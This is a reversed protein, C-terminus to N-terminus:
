SLASRIISPIPIKKKTAPSIFVHTTRVQACPSSPDGLEVEFTVSSDGLKIVKARAQYNRGPYIPRLYDAESHRLPVLWQTPNGFWQEWTIGRSIIFQELVRHALYYYNGFFVIGGMDTSDFGVFIQTSFPTQM